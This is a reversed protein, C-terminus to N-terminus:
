KRINSVSSQLILAHENLETIRQALDHLVNPRKIIKNRKHLSMRVELTPLKHPPTNPDQTEKKLTCINKIKPGIIHM